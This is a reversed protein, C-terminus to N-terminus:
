APLPGLAEAFAAVTAFRDGPAKALARLVAREIAAPVGPCLTGLPPVPDAAHRALIAQATRGGFPPEGTLMEYLVCGLSYIDSRGDLATGALAQEPSMYSPTGLAIGSVTLREGGALELARAIGFDAVLAHGSQLLINEPKIDRHVIGREHAYALADAVERTLRVAEDIPLQTKRLLLERLSEGQVYPMVYYLRRGQSTAPLEGSDHVQLIHPHHLSAAITIERLFRKAEVSFALAPKLLKLAVPRDLKRDRALYVTAMTGRGLERELLYREASEASASEDPRLQGVRLQEIYAALDTAPAAQLERRMLGEFDRAYNTAEAVEGADVLAHILGLASRESLPELTSLRRWCDIELTHEGQRAAEKARRSLARSHEGALRTREGAAWQEFASSEALFFGDLFPGRYLRLAVDLSGAALAPEFEWLDSSIVAPNLRLQDTGLFVEEHVQRRLSYLLQQLAHRANETPSEPWLSALVKDRSLGRAGAAALLALLALRLRQTVLPDGNADALTLGGFTALRLM